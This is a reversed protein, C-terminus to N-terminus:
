NCISLARYFTSLLIGRM